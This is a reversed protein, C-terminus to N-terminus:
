PLEAQLPPSRITSVRRPDRERDRLTQPNQGPFEMVEIPFYKRVKAGPPPDGIHLQVDPFSM